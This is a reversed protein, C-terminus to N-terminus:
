LAVESDRKSTCTERPIVFQDGWGGLPAIVPHSQEMNKERSGISLSVQIGPSRFMM